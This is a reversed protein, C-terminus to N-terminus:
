TQTWPVIGRRRDQGAGRANTIATTIFCLPPRRREAGLMPGADGKAAPALGLRQM